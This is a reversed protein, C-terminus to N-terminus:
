QAPDDRYGFGCIRHTDAFFQIGWQRSGCFIFDSIKRPGDIAQAFAHSSCELSEFRLCQDDCPPSGDGIAVSAPALLSRRCAPKAGASSARFVSVNQPCLMGAQKVDQTALKGCFARPRRAVRTGRCQGARSEPRPCREDPHPKAGAQPAKRVSKPPPFRLFLGDGFRPSGKKTGPSAHKKASNAQFGPAFRGASSRFRLKAFRIWLKM